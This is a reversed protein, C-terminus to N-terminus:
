RAANGRSEDILARLTAAEQLTADREADSITSWTELIFDFRGALRAARISLDQHGASALEAWSLEDTSGGARHFAYIFRGLREYDPRHGDNTDANKNM